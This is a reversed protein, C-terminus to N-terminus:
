EENSEKPKILHQHDAKMCRNEYIEVDAKKALEVAEPQEGTGPQLWIARPKPDLKLANQVAKKVLKPPLFIEVVDIPDPISKLDPYVKEGLIEDANPNVPIIHYGSDQLYRAVNQSEKESDRSLGVVAITSIRNLTKKAQRKIDKNHTSEKAM